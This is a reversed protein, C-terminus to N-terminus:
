KGAQAQRIFDGLPLDDTIIHHLWWDKVSQLVFLDGGKKLRIRFHPVDALLRGHEFNHEQRRPYCYKAMLANETDFHLRTLATLDEFLSRIVAEDAKDRISQNLQNILDVMQRHQEDIDDIGTIHADDIELWVGVEVAPTNVAYTYKGGGSNKSQYMAADAGVLLRDMETGNEPYVSIGISAGVKCDQENPLQIPESLCDILKRAVPVAEDPSDLGGLMVLFEDGGMRAVTDMARVLSLFRQAVVKLVIDGADHGHRDNVPKFDDLDVFLLAVHKKNRRAQSIAQSLRDFFLSRNPLGTLGDHFAMFSIQLEAQKRETIDTHTGIMRSPRGDKGRGVIMGRSLIWKWSGDRCRLRHELVFEAIAGDCYAQITALAPALDEPHVLKKWDEIGNGVEGEAYGLMERWRRSFLVEGTGITWDWVGDGAGELAFQWRQESERLAAEAVKREKFYTALALGVVSLIIIYFAYNSLHTRAIDDSFFGTGNKAGIIAQIATVALVLVAGHAGLRVAAWTIFLYMWYGRAIQGLSDHLWDLFVVQGVGFSLILILAAEFAKRPPAWERPPERWILLLPTVIILSIANGAWRQGFSRIGFVGSFTLMGASQLMQVATAVLLGIATAGLVIKLYDSLRTLSPDFRRKVLWIGAAMGVTHCLSILMSSVFSMGSLYVGLLAGVFVALCYRYGELLLVAFAVANAMWLFSLVTNDSFVLVKLRALVVYVAILGLLKSVDRLSHSGPNM